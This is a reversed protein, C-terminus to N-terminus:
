SRVGLVKLLGAHSAGSTPPLGLITARKAAFALVIYNAKYGPWSGDIDAIFANLKASLYDVLVVM